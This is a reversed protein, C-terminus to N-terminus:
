EQSENQLSRRGLQEMEALQAPQVGIEVPPKAGQALHTSRGANDNDDREHHQRHQRDHDKLVLKRM